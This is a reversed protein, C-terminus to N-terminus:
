EYTIETCYGDWVGWIGVYYLGSYDTVDLEATLDNGIEFTTYPRPATTNTMASTKICLRAAYGPSTDMWYANCTYKMRIKSVNTLDVPSETYASATRASTGGDCTFTIRDTITVTTYSDNNVWSTFPVVEGYYFYANYSLGVDYSIDIAVSRTATQGDKSAIVTWTGEGLREFVAVGGTKTFSDVGNTVTITSGAPANVTLTAGGVGAIGHVVGLGNHYGAPISFTEGGNVQASVAGRNVIGSVANALVDLKDAATALGLDLLKSRITNRANRLRTIEQETIM